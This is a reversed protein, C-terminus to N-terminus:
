MDLEYGLRDEVAHVFEYGYPVRLKPNKPDPYRLQFCLDVLHQRSTTIMDITNQFDQITTEHPRTVTFELSSALSNMSDYAADVIEHNSKPVKDKGLLFDTSVGYRTSIKLVGEISCGRGTEIKAITSKALGCSRAFQAQTYGDTGQMLRIGKVRQALRYKWMEAPSGMGPRKDWTQPYELEAV